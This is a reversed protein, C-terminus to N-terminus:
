HVLRDCGGRAPGSVTARGIRRAQQRAQDQGCDLLYDLITVDAQGCTGSTKPAGSTMSGHRPRSEQVARSSGSRGSSRRMTSVRPGKSLREVVGPVSVM